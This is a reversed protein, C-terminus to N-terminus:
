AVFVAAQLAKGLDRAVEGVPAQGLLPHALALLAEPEQEFADLPMLTLPGQNVPFNCFACVFACSRATRTHVTHYLHETPVDEQWRIFTDAMPTPPDMMPAPHSIASSAMTASLTSQSRTTSSGPATTRAQMRASPASTRSPCRMSSEM